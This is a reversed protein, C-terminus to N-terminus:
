PKTSADLVRGLQDIVDLWGHPREVAESFNTDIIVADFGHDRAQDILEHVRGLDDRLGLMPAGLFVRYWVSLPTVGPGRRDNLRAVLRAVEAPSGTTPNWGDFIRAARELGRDSWAGAILHPHPVQVPKPNLYSSPITFFEGGFSVPDPGWCAKLAAVLEEMRRGRGSMSVDSLAHEDQSWGIGLGVVLRGASLVDITALRQALEVPRHYGGVLVSTGLLPESTWAAAMSLVELAALTHRYQKPVPAGPIGGYGSGPKEPVLMHEQVWLSSFGRAESKQCFERLIPRTIGPGLQPLCIGVSTV